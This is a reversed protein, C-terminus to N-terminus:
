IKIESINGIMYFSRSPINDYEGDLIANVGKITDEFSVFKGKQGTYQEAAFMPQSLFNLIKRARYVINQKEESLEEIGFLAIINKLEEYSQLVNRVRKVCESHENSLKETSHSMLPDIAPFIGSSAVVRSLYILGMFHPNVAIVSPDTVDDAPIYVTQVSTISGKIFNAIRDQIQGIDSNLTCSYGVAAPPIGLMTSIETGSQIYRFMNDAFFMVDANKKAFSEAITIGARIAHNRIGPPENMQGFVISVKSEGEEDIIKNRKLEDWLEKGERIREGIGAFVSYGDYNTAVNKILEGLLVTKGVGAGGFLGIKGGKFYPTLLDIAKIGTILMEQQGKLQFLNPTKGYISRKEGTIDDLGDLPNSLPDMIRGLTSKGVIVEIEHETNYVEDGRKLGRVDNLCLARVMNGGLHQMVEFVYQKYQKVLTLKTRIKPIEGKFCIDTILSKIEKITGKKTEDIM